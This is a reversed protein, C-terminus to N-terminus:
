EMRTVVATVLIGTKDDSIFTGSEVKFMRADLEQTIRGVYAALGSRLRKCTDLITDSNCWKANGVGVREAVAVSQGVELQDIQDAMSGPVRRRQLTAAPKKAAAKKTM